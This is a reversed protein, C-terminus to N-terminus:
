GVDSQKNHGRVMKEIYENQDLLVCDRCEWSSGVCGYAEVTLSIKEAEEPGYKDVLYAMPDLFGEKEFRMQAEKYASEEKECFPGFARWIKILMAGSFDGVLPDDPGGFPKLESIHRRCCQCHGKVPPPTINNIGPKPKLDNENDVSGMSICGNGIFLAKAM